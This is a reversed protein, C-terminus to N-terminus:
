GADIVVATVAGLNVFLELACGREDYKVLHLSEPTHEIVGLYKSTVGPVLVTYATGAEDLACLHTHLNKGMTM